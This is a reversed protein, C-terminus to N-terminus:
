RLLGNMVCRLPLKAGEGWGAGCAACMSTSSPPTSPTHESVGSAAAGSSAPLLLQNVRPRRSGQPECRARLGGGHAPSAAPSSALACAAAPASSRRVLEPSLAAKGLAPWFSSLSTM